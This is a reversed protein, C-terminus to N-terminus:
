AEQRELLVDRVNRRPTFSVPDGYGMRIVVQPFDTRGLTRCLRARLAPIEIPQNVFSTQLGSACAELLVREIALGAAFWDGPTDNFTGLVALVPAGAALQQDRDEEAKESWLDFTRVLLPSDTSQSSGGPRASGPLGDV